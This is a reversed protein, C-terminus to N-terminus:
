GPQPTTRVKHTSGPLTAAAAPGGRPPIVPASLGLLTAALNPVKSDLSSAAGPVSADLSRMGLITSDLSRPPGAPGAGTSRASQSEGKEPSPASPHGASNRDSPGPNVAAGAQAAPRDASARGPAKSDAARKDAPSDGASDKQGIGRLTTDSSM